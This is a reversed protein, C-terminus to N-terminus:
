RRMRSHTWEPARRPAQIAHRSDDTTQDPADRNGGPVGMVVPGDACVGSLWREFANTPAMEVASGAVGTPLADPVPVVHVPPDADSRDNLSGRRLNALCCQLSSPM